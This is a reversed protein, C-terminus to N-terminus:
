EIINRIYKVMEPHIEINQSTLMLRLMKNKECKFRTILFEFLKVNNTELSFTQLEFDIFEQVCPASPNDNILFKVMEINDSDLSKFIMTCVKCTHAM